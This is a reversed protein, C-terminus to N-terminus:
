IKKHTSQHCPGLPFCLSILFWLFVMLGGDWFPVWVHKIGMITPGHMDDKVGNGFAPGNYKYRSLQEESRNTVALQLGAKTKGSVHIEQLKINM